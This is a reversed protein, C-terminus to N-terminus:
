DRTGAGPKPAGRLFGAGGAGHLVPFTAPLAAAARWPLQGALLHRLRELLSPDNLHVLRQRLTDHEGRPFETLVAEVATPRLAFPTRAQPRCSSDLAEAAATPAVLHLEPSLEEDYRLGYALAAAVARARRVALWSPVFTAADVLALPLAVEHVHARQRRPRPRLHALTVELPVPRGDWRVDDSTVVVSTVAGVCGTATTLLDQLPAVHHDLLAPLTRPSALRVAFEPRRKV